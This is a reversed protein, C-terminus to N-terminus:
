EVSKVAIGTLLALLLCLMWTSLAPIAPAANATTFPATATNNAANPDTTTGAVTVSNSQSAPTASTQLVLTISASGPLPITGLTCVVPGTGSCSGQTPTTSILTSGAPLVDTATVNRAWNPGANSVTITFTVNSGPAFPGTGAVSKTVSLDATGADVSKIAIGDNNGINADASTTSVHAQNIITQGAADADVQVIVTFIAQAGAALLPTTATFTGTGGAPPTSLTLAPGSDQSASVFTTHAPIPDSVVVDQAATSGENTLVLTYRILGNPSVPEPNQTKSLAPDAAGMVTTTAAFLALASVLLGRMMM